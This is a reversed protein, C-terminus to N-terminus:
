ARREAFDARREPVPALEHEALADPVEAPLREVDLKREVQERREAVREEDRAPSRVAAEERRALPGARELRVAESVDPDEGVDGRDAIRERPEHDRRDGRPACSIFAVMAM